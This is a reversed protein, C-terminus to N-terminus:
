NLKKSMTILHLSKCKNLYLVGDCFLDMSHMKAWSTMINLWTVAKLAAVVEEFGNTNYAYSSYADPFLTAIVKIKNNPYHHITYM